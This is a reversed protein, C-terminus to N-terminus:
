YIYKNCLNKKSHQDVVMCGFIYTDHCTTYFSTDKLTQKLTTWVYKVQPILIESYAAKEANVYHM